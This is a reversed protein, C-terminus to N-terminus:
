RGITKLNVSRWRNEGSFGRAFGWPLPARAKGLFLARRSVKHAVRNTKPLLQLKHHLALREQRVWDAGLRPQIVPIAAIATEPM